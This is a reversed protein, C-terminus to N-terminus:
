NKRRIYRERSVAQGMSMRMAFITLVINVIFRVTLFTVLTSVGEGDTGMRLRTITMIDGIM